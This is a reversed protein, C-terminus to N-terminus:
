FVNVIRAFLKMQSAQSPEFHAEAPSYLVTNSIWASIDRVVLSSQIMKFNLDTLQKLILRGHFCSDFIYTHHREWSYKNPVKRCIIILPVTASNINILIGHKWSVTRFVKLRICRFYNSVCRFIIRQSM